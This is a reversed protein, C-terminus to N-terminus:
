GRRDVLGAASVPPALVKRYAALTTEGRELSALAARRALEADALVRMAERDCALIENVLDTSAQRLALISGYVPIVSAEDRMTGLRERHESLGQEIALLSRTLRDREDSVIKFRDFDRAASVTRQEAAISQLQRLLALETELGKRFEELALELQQRTVARGGGGARRECYDGV